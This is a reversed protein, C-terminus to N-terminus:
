VDAGGEDTKDKLYISRTQLRKLSPGGPLGTYRQYVTESSLDLDSRYDLVGRLPARHSILTECLNGAGLLM